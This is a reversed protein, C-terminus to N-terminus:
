IAASGAVHIRGNKDDVVVQSKGEPQCFSKITGAILGERSFADLVRTDKQGLDRHLESQQYERSGRGIGFREYGPHATLVLIQPDDAEEFVLFRVCRGEADVAVEGFGGASRCLIEGFHEGDHVAHERGLGHRQLVGQPPNDEFLSSDYV